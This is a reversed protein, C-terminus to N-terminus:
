LILNSLYEFQSLDAPTTNMIKVMIITNGKKIKKTAYM